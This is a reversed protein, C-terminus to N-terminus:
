YLYTPVITYATKRVHVNIYFVGEWGGVRGGERGGM